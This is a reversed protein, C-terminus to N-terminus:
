RARQTAIVFDCAMTIELGGGVAFGDVAAITIKNLEELSYAMNQYYRVREFYQANNGWAGSAMENLDDGACFTGGAGSIILYKVEDNTRVREVAEVLENSLQISLCNRVDPRNLTFRAVDGDIEFLSQAGGTGTTTM